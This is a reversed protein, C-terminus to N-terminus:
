NKKLFKWIKNLINRLRIDTKYNEHLRRPSAMAKNWEISSAIPKFKEYIQETLNHDITNERLLEVAKERKMQGSNILTSYHAKRKDIGFKGPLFTEQYWKTFLNECHKNGYDKWGYKETLLKKAEERNYEYYDLLNLTKIKKIFRYYIYQWLSMTPLGSLKKRAFRKYIHKIHVLDSANYSWVDPMIAETAINGGSIIWRIGNDAALKYQLARIIHDTPIEVNVVGSKLFCFQLEKFRDVDLVYRQFPVKLGEVLRMINEDSEPTNWGNDVSFCLPKVGHEVLYHLCLSSDVGGSLGLICHYKKGKKMDYIYWPLNSKELRREWNKENFDYCYNCVGNKDFGIPASEDMVCRVCRKNDTLNGIVNQAYNSGIKEKGIINEM